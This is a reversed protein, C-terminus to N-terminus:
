GDAKEAQQEKDKLILAETLRLVDGLNAIEDRHRQIDSSIEVGFGEEIEFMIEIFDLSDIGLDEFTRDDRLQQPDVDLYGSIIEIIQPRLM